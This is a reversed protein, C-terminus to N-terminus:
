KSGKLLNNYYDCNMKFICGEVKVMDNEGIKAKLYDQRAQERDWGLVVFFIILLSILITIIKEM